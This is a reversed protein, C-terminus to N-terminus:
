QGVGIVILVATPRDAFLLFLRYILALTAFASCRADRHVHPLLNVTNGAGSHFLKFIGAFLLPV